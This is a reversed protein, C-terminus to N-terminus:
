RGDCTKGIAERCLGDAHDCRLDDDVNNGLFVNIETLMEQVHGLDGVYSRNNPQMQQSKRHAALANNLHKMQFAIADTLREYAQTATENTTRKKMLNERRPDNRTLVM